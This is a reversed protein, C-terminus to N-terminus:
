KPSWTCGRVIKVLHDIENEALGKDKKRWRLAQRVNALVGRIEEPETLRAAPTGALAKPLSGKSLGGALVLYTKKARVWAGGLELLCWPSKVSNPTLVGLVCCSQNLHDRLFERLNVDAPERYKPNNHSTCLIGAKPVMAAEIVKVIEAAIKKDKHSHSVFLRFHGM